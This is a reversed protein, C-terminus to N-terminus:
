GAWTARTLAGSGARPPPSAEGAGDVGQVRLRSYDLWFLGAGAAASLQTQFAPM